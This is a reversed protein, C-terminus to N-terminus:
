QYRVLQGAAHLDPFVKAGVSAILAAGFAAEERHVTAMPALEMQTEVLSSLLANERLGNGATVLQSQSKGTVLRILDYAQRYDRAM